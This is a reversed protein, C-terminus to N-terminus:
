NALSTPPFGTKRCSASSMSPDFPEILLEAQLRCNLFIGATFALFLALVHIRQKSEPM